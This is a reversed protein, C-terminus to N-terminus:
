IYCPAYSTCAQVNRASNRTFVSARVHRTSSVSCCHIQPISYVATCQRVQMSDPLFLTSNAQVHKYAVVRPDVQRVTVAVLRQALMALLSISLM